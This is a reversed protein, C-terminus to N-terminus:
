TITLVHHRLVGGHARKVADGNEVVNNFIRM